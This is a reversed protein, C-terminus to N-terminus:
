SQGGEPTSHEAPMPRVATSPGAMDQAARRLENAHRSGPYEQEALFWTMVAMVFQRDSRSLMNRPRRLEKVTEQRHNQIARGIMRAAGHIAEVGPDNPPLEDDYQGHLAAHMAAETTLADPGNPGNFIFM